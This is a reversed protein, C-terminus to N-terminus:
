DYVLAGKEGARPRFVVAGLIIAGAEVMFNMGLSEGVGADSWFWGAADVVKGGPVWQTSLVTGLVTTTISCGASWCQATTPPM